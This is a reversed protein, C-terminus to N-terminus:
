KPDALFLSREPLIFSAILLEIITQTRIYASQLPVIESVAATRSMASLLTYPCSTHKQPYKCQDPYQHFTGYDLTSVQLNAEFDVGEACSYAYSGDGGSCFWGEDGLTVMHTSDISKIFASTESAWNTIVSSDCGHCRPENCLEWSFVAPSSKYRNVVFAIYNKYANQAETNTYFTTANCGFYNGIGLDALSM